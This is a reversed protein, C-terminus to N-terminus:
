RMIRERQLWAALAPFFRPDFGPSQPLSSLLGTPLVLPTHATPLVVTSFDHGAKVADIRELCLETPVNRDDSGYMWLVPISLRRLDPLPDFGSPGQQRVQALMAARTGSPPTESEGALRGWYDSEGVTTTPGSNLAAWRVASERAAALPIIWGAQSDGFLGVRAPDIQPLKALFRVEAQADRALVDLTSADAVDGPYRGGSEGVGRKDDALVAIGHLAFYATFIDFEDRTRPGSGHVMAVAPFPGSGIPLTLTAADVGVRVELQRFAVRAYPTGKWSFGAADVTLSGDGNTEGLRAGVTLSAGIGHTAGSPLEILFPSLGDAELVAIEAGGSSRYAGLLSVIRNPARGLTFTGSLAGQRVSGALRDGRLAGDFVVDQPLGPLRFRVRIGNVTVAVATARGHGPGLSVTAERGHMQVVIAVPSAARPLAFAGSWTVAIM